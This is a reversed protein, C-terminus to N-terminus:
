GRGRLARLAPTARSLLLRRGLPSIKLTFRARGDRRDVAIRPITLPTAARQAGSPLTMAFRYGAAAAARAVRASWDGYPYALSDCSGLRDAIRRRSDLLEQALEEDGLRSLRPHGMTHSGVEM